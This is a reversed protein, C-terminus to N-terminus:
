TTYKVSFILIIGLTQGAPRAGDKGEQARACAGMPLKEEGHRKGVYRCKSAAWDNVQDDVLIDRRVPHDRVAVWAVTALAVQVVHLCLSGDGCNGLPCRICLSSNGNASM